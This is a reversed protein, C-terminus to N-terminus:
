PIKNIVLYHITHNKNPHSCKFAGCQNCRKARSSTGLANSSRLMNTCTSISTSDVAPQEWTAKYTVWTIWASRTQHTLSRFQITKFKKLNKGSVNFVFWIASPLTWSITYNLLILAITITLQREKSRVQAQYECWVTPESIPISNIKFFFIIVAMYTVPFFIKFFILFNVLFLWLASTSSSHGFHPFGHGQIWHSQVSSPHCRCTLALYKPPFCYLWSFSPWFPLPLQSINRFKKSKIIGIQKAQKKRKYTLPKIVFLLRDFALGIFSIQSGAYGCTYPVSILICTMKTFKDVYVIMLYFQFIGRILPGFGSFHNLFDYSHILKGTIFDMFANLFILRNCQNNRLHKFRLFLCLLFTNTGITNVAILLRLINMWVTGDLFTLVDTSIVTKNDSFM